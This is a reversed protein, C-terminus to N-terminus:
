DRSASHALSYPTEYDCVKRAINIIEKMLSPFVETRTIISYPVLELNPQIQIERLLGAEVLPGSVATPLAAAGLGSAAISGLAVLSDCSFTEKPFVAHQNMWKGLFVGATSQQSQLLLTYNSLQQAPITEHPIPFNPSCFWANRVEALPTSLINASQYVDPLVILDLEGINLRQLLALGQEMSIILNVAPFSSKVREVFLPLWTLATLETLGIRLRSITADDQGRLLQLIEDRTDLIERTRGLTELGELTLKATRGSRDFLSHFFGSEFEQIHKSVSSQTLGLKKAAARFSQTDNVAAYAELQKFSVKAM